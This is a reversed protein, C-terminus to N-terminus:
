CLEGGGLVNEGDYFVVAQGKAVARQEKKFVIKVKDKAVRYITAIEENQRYRIKLSCSFEDKFDEEYTFRLNKAFAEKQFLEEQTSLVM